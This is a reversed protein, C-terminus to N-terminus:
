DNLFIRLSWGLAIIILGPGLVYLVFAGIAYLITICWPQFEAEVESYNGDEIFVSINGADDQEGILGATKMDNALVRATEQSIGLREKLFEVSIAQQKHITKVAKWILYKDM